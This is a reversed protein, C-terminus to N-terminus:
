KFKPRVTLSLNGSGTRRGCCRKPQEAAHAGRTRTNYVTWGILGLSVAALLLGTGALGRALWVMGHSKQVTM